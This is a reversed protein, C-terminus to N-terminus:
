DRFLVSQTGPNQQFHIDMWFESLRGTANSLRKFPSAPVILRIDKLKNMRASISSKELNIGCRRLYAQIDAICTGSRGFHIIADHVLILQHSRLDDTKKHADKSTQTAM